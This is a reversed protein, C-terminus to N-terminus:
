TLMVLSEEDDQEKLEELILALESYNMAELKPTDITMLGIAQIAAITAIKRIDIIEAQVEEKPPSLEQNVVLAYKNKNKDLLKESRKKQKKLWELHKRRSIDAAGGSQAPVIAIVAGSSYGRTPVFKVGGNYGRTVVSAISM